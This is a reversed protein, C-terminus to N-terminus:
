HREVKYDKLSSGDQHTLSLKTLNGRQDVLGRLQFTGDNTTQCTYLAVSREVDGDGRIGASVRDFEGVLDEIARTDSTVEEGLHIAQCNAISVFRFEDFYALYKNVEDPALNLAQLVSAAHATHAEVEAANAINFEHVESRRRRWRSDNR